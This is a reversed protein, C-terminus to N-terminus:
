KRGRNEETSNNWKKGEGKERKKHEGKKKPHKPKEKV